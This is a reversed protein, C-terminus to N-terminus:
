TVLNEGFDDTKTPHSKIQSEFTFFVQFHFFSLFLHILAGGVCLYVDKPRDSQQSLDLNPNDHLEHVRVSSPSTLM